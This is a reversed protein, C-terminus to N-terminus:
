FKLPDLVSQAQATVEYRVPLRPGGSANFGGQKLLLCDHALEQLSGQASYINLAQAGLRVAGLQEASLKSCGRSWAVAKALMPGALPMNLPLGVVFRVRLRSADLRNVGSRQGSVLGTSADPAPGSGSRPRAASLEHKVWAPPIILQDAGLGWDFFAEPKPELVQWSVWGQLRASSLAAQSTALVQGAASLSGVESADKLLLPSLGLALGKSLSGGAAGLERVSQGVAYNVTLAQQALLGLQVVLPGMLLVVPMALLAEILSYGKPSRCGAKSSALNNVQRSADSQSFSNGESFCTNRSDFDLSCNPKASRPGEKVLWAKVDAQEQTSLLQWDMEIAHAARACLYIGWPRSWHWQLPRGADCVFVVLLRRYIFFTHLCRCRPFAFAKAGSARSPQCAKQESSSLNLSRLASCLRLCLLKAYIGVLREGFGDLPKYSVPLDSAFPLSVRKTM